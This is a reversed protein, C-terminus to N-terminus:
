VLFLKKLPDMVENATLDLTIPTVSIYNSNVAGLDTEITIDTKDHRYDAAGIWFYSGGRPDISKIVHDSNKSRFGQRTVIIDKVEEIECAPFNVNILTNPFFKFESTLKKLVIPAFTKAVAWNAEGARNVKQSLSIAPVGLLAAEMAAAVTGSYTIDEALNSDMNIGSLVFDPREPMIHKLAMVVCDTPTGNISFHHDDYEQIRLPYQLTLSHGAGSQNMQPAVVVVEDYLEVAIEELLKIGAANIGDDNSILIRM